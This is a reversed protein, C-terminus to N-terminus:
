FNSYVKANKTDYQKKSNTHKQSNHITFKTHHQNRLRIPYRWALHPSSASHSKTSDIQAFISVSINHWTFLKM